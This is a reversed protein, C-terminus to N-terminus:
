AQSDRRLRKGPPALGELMRGARGLWSDGEAPALAQAPHRGFWALHHAVEDVLPERRDLWADCWVALDKHKDARAASRLLRVLDVGHRMGLLTGRYSREKDLLRDGLSTRLVSFLVGLTTGGVSAPLGHKRCFVPLERLNVEADRAVSRLAAAPPVLGLRDAEILGHRQASRETQFLERVLTDLLKKESM